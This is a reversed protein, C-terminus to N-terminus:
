SRFRSADREVHLTPATAMAGRPRELAREHSAWWGRADIATWQGAVECDELYARLVEASAYRDDPDKALCRMVVAELDAPVAVGGRASPPVPPTHAHQALVELASGSDFLPQATLLFYAVAGLSYLDSRADVTGPHMWLEPAMYLPTGVIATDGTLAPGPAPSVEKVLGFDLVKVADAAGWHRCLFLNAPKIDRHVLGAGHADTLARCAQILIHVVRAPPLAGSLRVVRELDAGDLLEMAYYLAGAETRGYDYVTVINPHALAAMRQVEREFRDQGGAADGVTLLKVATPRRLMAHRARYVVGMGGQGLPELLTYQGLREAERVQKRLGYLVRSSAASFAIGVLMWNAYIGVLTRHAISPPTVSEGFLAVTIVAPACVVLGVLATRRWSSPVILARIALLLVLGTQIQFTGVDPRPHLFVGVAFVATIAAHAALDVARLVAVSRPPGSGVLWMAIASAFLVAPAIEAHRLARGPGVSPESSWLALFLVWYAANFATLARGYFGLRSQLLTRGDHGIELAPDSSEASVGELLPTAV